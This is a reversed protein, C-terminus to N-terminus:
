YPKLIRDKKFDYKFVRTNDFKDVVKLVINEKLPFQKAYLREKKAKKCVITDLILYERLDEHSIQKEISYIIEQNNEYITYVM